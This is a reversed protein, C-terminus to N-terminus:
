YPRTGRILESAANAFARRQKQTKLLLMILSEVGLEFCGAIVIGLVIGHTAMMYGTVAAEVVAVVFTFVAM